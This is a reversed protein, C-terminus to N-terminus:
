NADLVEVLSRNYADPDRMFADLSFNVPRVRLSFTGAEVEALAKDLDSSCM